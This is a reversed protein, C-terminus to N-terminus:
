IIFLSKIFYPHRQHEAHQLLSINRIWQKCCDYFHFVTFFILTSVLISVCMFFTRCPQWSKGVKNLTYICWIIVSHFSFHATAIFLSCIAIQTFSQWWVCAIWCLSRASVCISSFWCDAIFSFIAAYKIASILKIDSVEQKLSIKPFYRSQLTSAVGTDSNPGTSCCTRIVQPIPGCKDQTRVHLFIKKESNNPKQVKNM